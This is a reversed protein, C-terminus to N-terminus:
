FLVTNGVGFVATNLAFLDTAINFTIFAEGGVIQRGPTTLATSGAFPDTDFTFTNATATSSFALFGFALYTVYRRMILGGVPDPSPLSGPANRGSLGGDGDQRRPATLLM